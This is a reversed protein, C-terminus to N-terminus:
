KEEWECYSTIRFSRRATRERKKEKRVLNLISYLERHNYVIRKGGKKEKWLLRTAGHSLLDKEERKKKKRWRGPRSSGRAGGKEKEGGKEESLCATTSRTQIKKERRRQFSPPV